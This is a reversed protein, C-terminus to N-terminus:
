SEDEELIQLIRVLKDHSASYIRFDFSHPTFNFSCGPVGDVCWQDTRSMYPRVQLGANRLKLAFNQAKVYATREETVSKLARSHLKEADPLLRRTIDKAIAAACKNPSMTIEPWKELENREPDYKRVEMQNGNSGEHKYIEAHSSWRAVLRNRHPDQSLTLTLGDSERILHSSHSWDEFTKLRWTDTLTNLAKVVNPPLNTLQRDEM